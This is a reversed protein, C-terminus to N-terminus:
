VDLLRRTARKRLTRRTMFVCLGAFLAPALAVITLFVIIGEWFLINLAHDLIREFRNQHHPTIPAKAPTQLTLAITSNRAEQANQAFQARLTSLQAQLSELQTQLTQRQNFTLTTQKLDRQLSIIKGELPAIQSRLSQNAQELDTINSNVTKITGLSSLERFARQFNVRPVNIVIVAEGARNDQTIRLCPEQPPLIQGKLDNTQTTYIPTTECPQDGTAYSVSVVWGKLESTTNLAQQTAKSLDAVTKVEVGLSASVQQARNNNTTPIAASNEGASKSSTTSDALNTSFPVTSVGNPSPSTPSTTLIAFVLTAGVLAPAGILFGRRFSLQAFFHRRQKEENLGEVAQRLRQPAQPKNAQLRSSINSINKTM